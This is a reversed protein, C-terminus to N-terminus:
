AANYSKGWAVICGIVIFWPTKNYFVVVLKRYLDIAEISTWLFYVLMFYYLLAGVLSCIVDGGDVSRISSAYGAILYM